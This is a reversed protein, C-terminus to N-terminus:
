MLECSQVTYGAHMWGHVEVVDALESARGM